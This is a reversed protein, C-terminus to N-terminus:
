ERKLASKEIHNNELYLRLIEDALTQAQLGRLPRQALQLPPWLEQSQAWPPCGHRQLPVTKEQFFVSNSFNQHIQSFTDSPM